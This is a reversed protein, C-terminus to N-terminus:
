EYNEVVKKFESLKIIKFNFNHQLELLDKDGTVLYDAKGDYALNLLFDDNPDRCLNFNSITVVPNCFQIFFDLLFSVNQHNFHKKFKPRKTVKLLENILDASFLIEVNKSAILNNLYTLKKSILFSILINTDFVILSNFPKM